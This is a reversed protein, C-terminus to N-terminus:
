SRARRGFQRRYQSPSMGFERRFLKGFYNGDAIGVRAAVQGVPCDSNALLHCASELRYQTLLAHPSLGYQHTVQRCLTTRGVHLRRAMEELTLEDAYASRVLAMFRAAVSEGLEDVLANSRIYSACAGLMLACAGIYEAPYAPIRLYARELAGQDDVYPCRRRLEARVDGPADSRAQGLMLYAICEGAQMIPVVAESLGAHCAYVQPQRSQMAREVARADCERCAARGRAHCRVIDCFPQARRPCAMRENGARDYLGVRLGTVEHFSDLLQRLRVEDMDLERM